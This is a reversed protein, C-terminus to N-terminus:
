GQIVFNPIVRHFLTGSYQGQDVYKLFQAVTLPAREPQLEITFNGMSTVVQVRLPGTPASKAPASPTDKAASSAANSPSIAASAAAAAEPAPAVPSDAALSSQLATACLLGLVLVLQKM